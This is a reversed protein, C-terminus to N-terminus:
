GKWRFPFFPSQLYKGFTVMWIIINGRKKEKNLLSVGPGSQHYPDGQIAYAYANKGAM